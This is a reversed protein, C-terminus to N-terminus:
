RGNLRRPTRSLPRAGDRTIAITESFGAGYRGLVRLMLPLHFVMGEELQGENQASILFGPNELWSPPFAIGVPYGFTYHFVIRDLVPELAAKGAAAVDCARAGPRAAAMLADICAISREALEAVEPRVSEGAVACRMIPSTYRGKSGGLEFFVTDGEQVVTGGRHSHPTGSRWGVCVVPDVVLFDSGSTMLAETARGSIQHDSIGVEVADLGARVGADTMRAADELLDLEARSKVLRAEEILGRVARADLRAKLREMMDFPTYTAGTDIAVRGGRLGAAAMAQTVFAVPDEHLEWYAAQPGTGSAMYRGAEFQWLYIRAESDTAIVLFMPDWLNWTFHGTLYCVNGPHSTVLVDIGRGRMLRRVADMRAGYEEASFYTERPFDKTTM